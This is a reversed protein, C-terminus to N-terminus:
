VQSETFEHDSFGGTPLTVSPNLGPTSTPNWLPLGAAEVQRPGFPAPRALVISRAATSGAGMEPPGIAVVM